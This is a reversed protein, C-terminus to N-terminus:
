QVVLTELVLEQIVGKSRLRARENLDERLHLLGSPGQIQALSVTRMYALIDQRTESALVDPHEEEGSRYVISAELRVWDSASGALNTVVAALKKIAINGKYPSAVETKQPLAKYKEEVQREIGSVMVLGFGGGIAASLLTLLGLTLLWRLSGEKSPSSGAPAPLQLAKAM